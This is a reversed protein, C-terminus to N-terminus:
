GEEFNLLFWTALPGNVQQKQKSNDSAAEPSVSLEKMTSAM